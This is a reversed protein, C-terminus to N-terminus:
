ATPEEVPEEEPANMEPDHDGPMLGGATQREVMGQEMQQASMGQAQAAESIRVYPLFIKYEDWEMLDNIMRAIGEGSLHTSVAPDQGLPSSFFQSVNQIKNSQEAFHRAAIPKLRGVGTLDEPTLSMFETFKLEDNFVRITTPNMNRRSMELMGNMSPESLDREFTGSKADFVRNAANEIRQVEFATKEGPTRFGMAEKPAGAMEEMMQTLMAIENNAQLVQAPMEVPAVDGDDGIYIRAMPEWDFDEVYGKVKMPPFAILDFVDAKMNELHDIRYQMGVLNDLPGMAWLNDPRMRWGVHYIPSQGFYSPNTRQSIIQDRDIIKIVQNKYLKGEEINFLDGYFTLIEAYNSQLYHQYNDFGSINYIPNKTHTSGPPYEGMRMRTENMYTWIAQADAKEGEDNSLADVLQKVEGMTIISRIIKPTSAFDPATPNFVIDLPSIRLLSPGVYGKQEKPNAEDPDEAANRKDIWEPMVFCNGYDIFDLVLRSMCSYWEPRDVAWQMYSEIAKCKEKSADVQSEGEWRFWKKKPFMRSMYNAHLNDRIQCLKPITTKNSWPLKSNSTKTTDTAFIYRQVEQWESIKVQRFNEWTMYQNAIDCAYKNPSLVTDIELTKGAM